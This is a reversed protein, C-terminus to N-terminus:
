GRRKRWARGMGVLGTGFLLMTGPEPVVPDAGGAPTFMTVGWHDMGAYSGGWAMCRQTADWTNYFVIGCTDYGYGFMSHGEVQIMAVLGADIYGKYEAYTMGRTNGGEGYIRQSFFNTKANTYGAYGFYEWLGYMGDNNWIGQDFSDQATLKDGNNWTYIWTSGNSSGVSDQSTGMFDALSDFSHSVAVDDGSVGFNVNGRTATSENKYFDRIHGASAIAADALPSKTPLPWTSPEAQGGAVLNTYSRGGYGNIDYYGMMMGASTPSCGYYWDYSPANPLIGGQKYVVIEGASVQTAFFGLVVLAACITVLKRRRM